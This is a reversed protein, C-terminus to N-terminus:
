NSVTMFHWEYAETIDSLRKFCLEDGYLMGVKHRCTRKGCVSCVSESFNCSICVKNNIDIGEFSNENIDSKEAYCWAKLYKYSEGYKTTRENDCILETKYIRTNHNSFEIKGVFLSALSALAKDSFVDFDRDIENDCLIIPFTIIEDASLETHNQRNILELDQKSVKQLTNFDNTTM